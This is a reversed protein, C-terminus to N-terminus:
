PSSIIDHISSCNVGQCELFSFLRQCFFAPFNPDPIQRHDVTGFWVAVFFPFYCCALKFDREFCTKPYDRIGYEVLRTYYYAKVLESVVRAREPSFSEIILFALDQTGMGHSVYQWDMFHPEYPGHVRPKEYFINGTKVDGHCLTRAGRSLAEQIDPFLGAIAEGTALNDESLGMKWKGQFESWHSAVYDGWAPRMVASTNSVLMPFTKQIDKKWFRAHMRALRDVVSFTVDISERNLDLALKFNPKAISELLIGHPQMTEQNIITCIYMPVSIGVHESISEYFYRERAHLDLAAAMAALANNCNQQMSPPPEVKAVCQIEKGNSTHLIVPLVDAIYGGAMRGASSFSVGTVHPHRHSVSQLIDRSLSELYKNTRPQDMKGEQSVGKTMNNSLIDQLSVENFTDIALTAGRALLDARTMHSAIGVTMRVKAAIASDLGTGSDEFAICRLPDICLARAAELYPDPFPKSRACENGIILVEVIDSIGIKELIAEAVRRNCNTVVAIRVGYRSAERVFGVAGQIEEVADINNLFLTDKMDSIRGLIDKPACPALLAMASADDKGQIYGDFLGKNLSMNLLKTIETWVDVYVHDSMVLTGDLDFLFAPLNSVYHHVQEPTGLCKFAHEEIYVGTFTHDDILMDRIVCSMYFESNVQNEEKCIVKHCVARLTEGSSFAYLGTVANKSIRVKEVIDEIIGSPKRIVLYSFPGNTNLDHTGPEDFYAVANTATGNVITFIPDLVDYTYFADCDMIICPRVRYEPKGCIRDLGLAVTEAAGSTEDKPLEIMCLQGKEIETQYRECLADLLEAGLRPSYVIHIKSDTGHKGSWRCLRDLTHSILPQGLVDILPKPKCYGQRLFREGKGGLPVIIDM